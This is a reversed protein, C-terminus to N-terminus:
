VATGRDGGSVKNREARVQAAVLDYMEQARRIGEAGVVQPHGLAWVLQQHAYELRAGPALVALGRNPRQDATREPCKPCVLAGHPIPAGCRLCEVMGDM